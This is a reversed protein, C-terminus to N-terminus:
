RCLTHSIRRLGRDQSTGTSSEGADGVYIARVGTLARGPLKGNRFVLLFHPALFHHQVWVCDENGVWYVRRHRIM